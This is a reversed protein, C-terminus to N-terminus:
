ICDMYMIHASYLGSFMLYSIDFVCITNTTLLVLVDNAMKLLALYALLRATNTLLLCM